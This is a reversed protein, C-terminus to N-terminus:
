TKVRAKLFARKGEISVVYEIEDAQKQKQLQHTKKRVFEQFAAFTVKETSEGSQEKARLFAAFLEKIKKEERDPDKTSISIPFPTDREPRVPAEGRRRAREREIERAAAGFHRRVIGEEKQRFKKRFMEQYKAYTQILNLYRFRFSFSLTPGRDGYRKVMEEIRWEIDAPPRSRGGGFYKDYEIKLNRIDEELQNLDQATNLMIARFAPMKISLPAQDKTLARSPCINAVPV